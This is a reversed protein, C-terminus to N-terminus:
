SLYDKSHTCVSHMDAFVFDVIKVGFVRAQRLSEESASGKIYKGSNHRLCKATHSGGLMPMLNLFHDQKQLFVDVLIRFAGENCFLHSHM